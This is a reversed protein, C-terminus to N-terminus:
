TRLTFHPTSEDDGLRAVNGKLYEGQDRRWLTQHFYSNILKGNQLEGM